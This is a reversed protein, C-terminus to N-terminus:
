KVIFSSLKTKFISNRIFRKGRYTSGSHYWDQNHSNNKKHYNQGNYNRNSHNKNKIDDRYFNDNFHNRGNSNQSDHFSNVNRNDHEKRHVRNFVRDVSYDSSSDSKRSCSSSTDRENGNLKNILELVAVKQKHKESLFHHTLIEESKFIILCVNCFFDKSRPVLVNSLPPSSPSEERISNYTATTPSINGNGNFTLSRKVIVPVNNKLPLYNKFKAKHSASGLHVAYAITSDLQLSCVECYNNLKRTTSPPKPITEMTTMATMTTSANSQGTISHSPQTKNAPNKKEEIAQIREKSALKNRHTKSGLHVALSNYSNTYLSCLRCYYPGILRNEKLERQFKVCELHSNSEYHTQATIESNFESWCTTCYM